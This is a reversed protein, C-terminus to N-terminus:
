DDLFRLNPLVLLVVAGIEGGMSRNLFSYVIFAIYIIKTYNDKESVWTQKIYLVYFQFLISFLFYGGIIGNTGLIDILDSHYGVGTLTLMETISKTTRLNDGVGFIFNLPSSFFTKLTMGILYLRTSLSNDGIIGIELSNNFVKQVWNLRNALRDIGFYNAIFSILNFGIIVMGISATIKIFFRFRNGVKASLKNVIIILSFFLLLLSATARAYLVIILYVSLLYSVLFLVKFREKHFFLSLMILSFIMVMSIFGTGGVNTSLFENNYTMILTSADKNATLLGMNSVINVFMTLLLAIVVYRKMKESCYSEIFCEILLILYFKILGYNNGLSSTSYGVIHYSILIFIWLLLRLIYNSHKLTGSYKLVLLVFILGILMCLFYFPGFITRTFYPTIVFISFIITLYGLAKNISIKM